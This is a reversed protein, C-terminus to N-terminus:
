KRAGALAQVFATTFNPLPASIAEAAQAEMEEASAEPLHTLMTVGTPSASLLLRQQDYAVVFISQRNGLSRTELVKLRTARGRGGTLKGSNRYAWVGAFLLSFVLCLGGIMRVVSGAASPTDSGPVIVMDAAFAPWSLALILAARFIYQRARM